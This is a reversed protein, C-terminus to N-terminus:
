DWKLDEMTKNYMKNLMQKNMDGPDNVGKIYKFRKVEFYNKLFKTGNRGPLDNDLASIIKTIGKDKLKQIQGNSMKWGLIAVVNEKGYQVFKLRDMYGEVVFVYDEDGYSGVLTNSRSFGKNYLYKRKKEIEPLMTRCVWGRFKGNDIMPFILGYHNNYTIKAKCKNLTKPNFGRNLMYVKAKEVDEDNPEIWDVVKLGHYYDYAIDYLEKTSKKDKIILGKDLNINSYENSKLIKLYKSYAKLDNSKNYEVEMNKVFTFADGSKGCGFCFWSNLEYDIAVSPELDEHFPCIIKKELPIGYYKLVKALGLDDVNRGEGNM